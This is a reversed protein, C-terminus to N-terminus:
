PIRRREIISVSYENDLTWLVRAVDEVTLTAGDHDDPLQDAVRTAVEWSTLYVKM